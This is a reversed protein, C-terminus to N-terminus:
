LPKPVETPFIDEGTVEQTGEGFFLFINDEGRGKITDDFNSM